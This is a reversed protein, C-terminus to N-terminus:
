EQGKPPLMINAPNLLIIGAGGALTTKVFDRRSYIGMDITNVITM